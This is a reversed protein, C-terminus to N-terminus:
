SHTRTHSSTVFFLGCWEPDCCDEQWTSCDPHLQTTYEQGSWSLRANSDVESSTIHIVDIAQSEGTIITIPVKVIHKEDHETSREAEVPAGDQNILLPPGDYDDPDTM